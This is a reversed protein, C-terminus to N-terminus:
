GAMGAKLQPQSVRKTGRAGSLVRLGGFVKISGEIDANRIVCTAGAPVKVNDHSGSLSGRCITEDAALPAVALAATLVAYSIRLM